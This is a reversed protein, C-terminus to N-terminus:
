AKDDEYHGSPQRLIKVSARSYVTSSPYPNADTDQETRYSFDNRVTFLTTYEGESLFLKDSLRQKQLPLSSARRSSPSTELPSLFRSRSM